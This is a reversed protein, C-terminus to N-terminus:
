FWDESELSAYVSRIGTELDITANWGARSLKSVDMLKRLTGDPKSLDHLIDGEFGVIKKILLALEKISIDKGVGVNVLGKENYTEM